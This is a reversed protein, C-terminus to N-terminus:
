IFDTVWSVPRQVQPVRPVTPVASALATRAEPGLILHGHRAFFRRIWFGSGLFRLGLGAVASGPAGLVELFFSRLTCLLVSLLLM